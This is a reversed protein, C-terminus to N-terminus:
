IEDFMRAHKCNYEWKNTQVKCNQNLTWWNFTKINNESLWNWCNTNFLDFCGLKKLEDIVRSPYAAENTVTVDSVVNDSERLPQLSSGLQNNSSSSNCSEIHSVASSEGALETPPRVPSLLSHADMTFQLMWPVIVTVVVRERGVRLEVKSGLIYVVTSTQEIRTEVLPSRSLSKQLAAEQSPVYSNWGWGCRPTTGDLIAVHEMNINMTM